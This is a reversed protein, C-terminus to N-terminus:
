KKSKYKEEFCIVVDANNNIHIFHHYKGKNTNLFGNFKRSFWMIRKATLTDAHQKVYEDIVKGVDIQKVFVFKDVTLAM